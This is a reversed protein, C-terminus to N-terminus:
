STLEGRFIRLAEESYGSGEREVFPPLIRLGGPRAAMAEVLAVRAETDLRAHVFRLRKPVLGVSELGALFRPLEQTPYVFCARGKTGLVSRAARLFGELPAYRARARQPSPGEPGTGPTFYPPNCVALDAVGRHLAALGEVAGFVTARLTLENAELNRELLARAAPDKEAFLANRAADFRLLALGIPGVGAGLDVVLRAPRKRAAFAALWLADVNTRYAGRPLQHLVLRGGFLTDRTSSV